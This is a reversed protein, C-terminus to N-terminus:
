KVVYYLKDDAIGAALINTDNISFLSDEAYIGKSDYVVLRPISTNNKMLTKAHSSFYPIPYDAMEEVSHLLAVLYDGQVTVSSPPTFGIRQVGKSDGSDVTKYLWSAVSVTGDNYCETFFVTDNVVWFDEVPGESKAVVTEVHTGDLACKKLAGDPATVYWIEDGILKMKMAPETLETTKGTKIDVSVVCSYYPLTVNPDCYKKYKKYAETLKNPDLGAFTNIGLTYLVGNREYLENAAIGSMGGDKDQRIYWAYIYQEEGLLKWEDSGDYLISLNENIPPSFHSAAIRYEGCDLYTNKSGYYVINGEDDVGSGGLSEFSGDPSFCIQVDSGMIAGGIHYSMYLKDDRVTLSPVAKKETMYNIPIEFVRESLGGSMPTRSINGDKDVYWFYGAYSAISYYEECLPLRLISGSQTKRDIVLGNENDFSYDCGLLDHMNNWTMPIYTIDRFLLFPYKQKTNDIPVKNITIAGSAIKATLRGKNSSVRPSSVYEGKVGLDSISLGNKQTWESYLGLLQCGYYTLPLYTIDRYVIFPYEENEPAITQGGLTVPFGPLTVTVSSAAFATSPFGVALLVLALFGCIFRKINM